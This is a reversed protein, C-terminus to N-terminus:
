LGALISKQEGFCMVTMSFYVIKVVGRKLWALVSKKSLLGHMGTIQCSQAQWASVSKLSLLVNYVHQLLRKKVM